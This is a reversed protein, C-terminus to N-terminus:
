RMRMERTKIVQSFLASVERRCWQNGSSIVDSLQVGNVRALFIPVARWIKPATGRKGKGLSGGPPLRPVGLIILVPAM